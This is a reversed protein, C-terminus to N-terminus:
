IKGTFTNALYVDSNYLKAFTDLKLGSIFDFHCRRLFNSKSLRRSKILQEHDVTKLAVLDQTVVGAHVWFIKVNQSYGESIM